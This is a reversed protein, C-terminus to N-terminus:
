RPARRFRALPSRAVCLAHIQDLHARVVDRGAQIAAHSYHFEFMRIWSVDPRLVLLRGNVRQRAFELQLETLKASTARQAQLIADIYTEAPRTPPAGTDVAIVANAGLEIAVDAPLKDVVGGDIL